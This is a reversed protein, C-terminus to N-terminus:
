ESKRLDPQPSVSKYKESMENKGGVNQKSFDEFMQLLQFFTGTCVLRGVGLDALM